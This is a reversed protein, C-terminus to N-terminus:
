GKGGKKPYIQPGPFVSSRYKVLGTPPPTTPKPSQAAVAAQAAKHALLREKEQEKQAIYSPLARSDLHLNTQRIDSM